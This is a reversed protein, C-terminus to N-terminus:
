ERERVECGGWRSVNDDDMACCVHDSERAVGDNTRARAHTYLQVVKLHLNKISNIDFNLTVLTM